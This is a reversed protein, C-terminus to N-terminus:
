KVNQGQNDTPSSPEGDTDEVAYTDDKTDGVILGAAVGFLFLFM